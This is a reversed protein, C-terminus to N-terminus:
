LKEDLLKMHKVVDEQLNNNNKIKSPSVRTKSIDWELVKLIMREVAIKLHEKAIILSKHQNFNLTDGHILKNRIQSLSIGQNSETISWM